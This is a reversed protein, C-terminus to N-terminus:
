SQDDQEEKSFMTPSMYLAIPQGTNKDYEGDPMTIMTDMYFIGGFKRTEERTFPIVLVGAEEDTQVEGSGDPFFDATKIAEACEKKENKFIFRIREVDPLEVGVIKVKLPLYAGKKMFAGM